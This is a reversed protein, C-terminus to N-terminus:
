QVNLAIQRQYVNEAEDALSATVIVDDPWTFLSSRFAEIDRPVVYGKPDIELMDTLDVIPVGETDDVTVYSIDTLQVISNKEAGGVVMRFTETTRPLRGEQAEVIAIEYEKFNGLFQPAMLIVVDDSQGRQVNVESVGASVGPEAASIRYDGDDLDLEVNGKADSVGAKEGNVYVDANAVPQSNENDLTRIRLKSSECSGVLLVALLVILPVLWREPRM